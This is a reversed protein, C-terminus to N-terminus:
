ATWLPYRERAEQLDTLVDEVPAGTLKYVLESNARRGSRTFNAGGSFLTRRDLVAAKKHWCGDRTEGECLFVQAGAERLESLRRHQFFAKKEQHSKRDVYVRLKLEKKVLKNRLKTYLDPEDFM